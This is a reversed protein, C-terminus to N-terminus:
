RSRGLVVDRAHKIAVHRVYDAEKLLAGKSTKFQSPVDGGGDDPKSGEPPEFAPAAALEAPDVEPADPPPTEAAPKAGGSPSGPMASHLPQEM